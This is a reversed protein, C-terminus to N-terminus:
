VLRPLSNQGDLSKKNSSWIVLLQKKNLGKFARPNKYPYVLLPKLKFDGGANAGISLTVREKSVKYGSVAKESKSIFTREPMRKWYFGTEDM